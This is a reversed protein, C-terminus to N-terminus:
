KGLEELLNNITKLTKSKVKQEKEYLLDLILDVIEDIDFDYYYTTNQYKQSNNGHVWEGKTLIIKFTPKKGNELLDNEMGITDYTRNVISKLFDDYKLKEM